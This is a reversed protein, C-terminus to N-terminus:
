WLIQYGVQFFLLDVHDMQVMLLRIFGGMPFINQFYLGVSM